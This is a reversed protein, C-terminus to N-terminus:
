NNRQATWRAQTTQNRGAGTRNRGGGGPYGGGPVGVGGPYGGASNNNYGQLTVNGQMRDGRDGQIAGTFQMQMNNTGYQSQTYFSVYNGNLTGRIPITGSGRPDSISGQLNNGNQRLSLQLTMYQSGDTTVTWDGTLDGADSASTQSSRDPPPALKAPGYSGNTNSATSSPPATNITVDLPNELKFMLQTESNIRVQEPKTVVAGGGGGAGAGIIAGTKGGLVGGLIGGVAAGIGVNRVAKKGESSGSEEFTNSVVPYPDKGIFLRDLQVKLQSTGKLKGAQEVETIKLLVDSRRPIVTQNDVVIPKDLSAKFNQNPHSTESDISDIMRVYVETGAPITVHKTTPEAPAPPPPVPPAVPTQPAPLAITGPASANSNSATQQSDAAPVPTPVSVPPAAPAPKVAAVTRVATVPKAAATQRDRAPEAPKPQVVPAPEPASAAPTENAPAAQTTKSNELDPTPPSCSVMLFSMLIAFACFVHWPQRYMASNEKLLFPTNALQAMSKVEDPQYMTSCDNSRTVTLFGFLYRFM